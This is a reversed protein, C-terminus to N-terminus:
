GVAERLPKFGAAAGSLLRAPQASSGYGGPQLRRGPIVATNYGVDSNVDNNVNYAVSAPNPM